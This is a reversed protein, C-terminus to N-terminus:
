STNSRHNKALKDLWGDGVNYLCELVLASASVESFCQLQEKMNPSFGLLEINRMRAYNLVIPLLRVTAM